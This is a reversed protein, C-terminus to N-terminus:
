TKKSDFLCYNIELKSVKSIDWSSYYFFYGVWILLSVNIVVLVVFM